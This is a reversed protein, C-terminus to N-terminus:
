ELDEEDDAYNGKDDVIVPEKKEFTITPIDCPEDRDGLGLRIIRMGADGKWNRKM